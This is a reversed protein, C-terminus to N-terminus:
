PAAPPACYRQETWPQCTAVTGYVAVRATRGDGCTYGAEGNGSSEQYASLKGGVNFYSTTTAHGPGHASTVSRTVGCSAFVVEPAAGTGDLPCGVLPKGGEQMRTMAGSTASAITVDRQAEPLDELPHVCAETTGGDASPATGSAGKHACGVTAVVSTAAAALVVMSPLRMPAFSAGGSRSM